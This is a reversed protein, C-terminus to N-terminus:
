IPLKEQKPEKKIEEFTMTRGIFRMTATGLRGNRNKYFRFGVNCVADPDKEDAETKRWMICYDDSDDRLQNCWKAKASKPGTDRDLKEDEPIHNLVAITVPSEHAAEKLEQSNRMMGVVVDRDDPYLDRFGDVFIVRSEYKRFHQRVMARFEAGTMRRPSVLRYKDSHKEIWDLCSRIRIREQQSTHGRQARSFEIHAARCALRYEFVEAAMDKEFFTFPIEQKLLHLALQEFLATKGFGAEANFSILLGPLYGGLYWNIPELGMDIGPHIGDDQEQLKRKIEAHTSHVLNEDGGAPATLEMIEGSVRRIYEDTDDPGEYAMGLANDAITILKRLRQKELLIKVHFPVHASTPMAGSLKSIYYPGGCEELQGTDKLRNTVLVTDIPKKGDHLECIVKWIIQNTRQYFTDVVVGAIRAEDLVDGGGVLLIAGLVSQEAEVNQPMTKM